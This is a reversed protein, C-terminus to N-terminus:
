HCLFIGVVSCKLFCAQVRVLYAVGAGIVGKIVWRTQPLRVPAVPANLQEFWQLASRSDPDAEQAAKRERYRDGYLREITSRCFGCNRESKSSAFLRSNQQSSWCCFLVTLSFRDISERTLM